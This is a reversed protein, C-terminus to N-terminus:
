TNCAYTGYSFARSGTHSCVVRRASGRQDRKAKGKILRMDVTLFPEAELTHAGWGALLAEKIEKQKIM